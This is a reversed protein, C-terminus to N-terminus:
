VLGAGGGVVPSRSSLAEIYADWVPAINPWAYRRAAEVFPRRDPLPRTLLAGLRDVLGGEDEWLLADHLDPPVLAPYNYRRPALPVCGAAMAEVMGIGFFEHRTTSIAIDARKLLRGYTEKTEAHGFHLLETPFEEPIRLIADSPNDGPAGAIILRFPWGRDKAHRLARAFSEPAKDFEWRHSWLLVPPGGPERGDPLSDLWGLDVGVPLVQAKGVVAEVSAPLLWNNPQAQLHRLAAVFDDRHFESNFAVSDAALASMYNIQGFWSDFKTGKLRPYTMQNEHFYVGVPTRELRPRTLALFAALDLMDSALVCDFEGPLQLAQPALEQAGRRMRRRWEGAPLTLLVFEHASRSVLGDLFARHSGGYFPEVFLVRAM